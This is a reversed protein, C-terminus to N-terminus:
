VNLLIIEELEFITKNMYEKFNIMIPPDDDPFIVGREKRFNNANMLNIAEVLELKVKCDGFM